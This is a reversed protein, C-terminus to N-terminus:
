NIGNSLVNINNITQVGAARSETKLVGCKFTLQCLFVTSLCDEGLGALKCVPLQYGGEQGLRHPLPGRGPSRAGLHSQVLDPDSRLVAPEQPRSCCRNVRVSVLRVSTNVLLDLLHPLMMHLSKVTASLTSSVPGVHTHTNYQWRQSLQNVPECTQSLALKLNPALFHIIDMM